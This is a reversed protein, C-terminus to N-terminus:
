MLLFGWWGKYDWDKHLSHWICYAGLCLGRLLKHRYLLSNQPDMRMMGVLIYEFYHSDLLDLICSDFTHRVRGLIKHYWYPRSLKLGHELNHNDGLNHAYGLTCPYLNYMTKCILYSIKILSINMVHNWWNMSQLINNKRNTWLIM